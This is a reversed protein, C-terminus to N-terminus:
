CQFKCHKTKLQENEERIEISKQILARIKNVYIEETEKLKRKFESESKQQTELSALTIAEIKKEVEEELELEHKNKNNSDSLQKLQDKLETLENSCKKHDTVFNSIVTVAEDVKDAM